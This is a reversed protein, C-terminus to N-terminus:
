DVRIDVAEELREAAHDLFLCLSRPGTLSSSFISGYRFDGNGHIKHDVALIFVARPQHVSSQLYLLRAVGIFSLRSPARPMHHYAENRTKAWITDAPLAKAWPAACSRRMASMM